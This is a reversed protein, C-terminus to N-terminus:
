WSKGLIKRERESRIQRITKRVVDAALPQGSDYVWVGHEKRMRGGGREPRLIIRDEFAELELSAGPGLQLEDRVQKPLVVRGAKDMTTTTIM